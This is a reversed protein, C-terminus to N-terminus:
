AADPRMSWEMRHGRTGWACCGHHRASSLPEKGCRPRSGVRADTAEASDRDNERPGNGGQQADGHGALM